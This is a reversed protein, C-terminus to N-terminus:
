EGLARRLGEAVAAVYPEPWRGQRRGPGALARLFGGMESPLSFAPAAQLVPPVAPVLAELRAVVYRRNGATLAPVTCSLAAAFM